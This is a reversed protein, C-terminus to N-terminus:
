AKTTGHLGLVMGVMKKTRIKWYRQIHWFGLMGITSSISQVLGIYTNKLFSFDVKDNLLISLLTSTTNFGQASLLTLTFARHLLSFIRADSILFFAFVYIFLYPLKKYEKRLQWVQFPRSLSRDKSFSQICVSFVHRNGGLSFIVREKPSLSVQARNNFFSQQFDV